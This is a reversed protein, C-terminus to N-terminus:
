VTSRLHAKNEERPIWRIGCWDMTDAIDVIKRTYYPVYPRPNHPPGVLLSLVVHHSSNELGVSPEKHALAFLLGHYVSAWEAETPSNLNYLPCVKVLPAAHIKTLFAAASASGNSPQVVGSTQILTWTPPAYARRGALRLYRPMSIM